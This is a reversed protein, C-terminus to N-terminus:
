EFNQLHTHAQTHACLEYLIIVLLRESTFKLEILNQINKYSTLSLLVAAFQTLKAM